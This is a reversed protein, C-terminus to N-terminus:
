GRCFRTRRVKVNFDSDTCDEAVLKLIELCIKVGMQPAPSWLNCFLDDICTTWRQPFDRVMLSALLSSLKNALIRADTIPNQAQQRAANLLATRLTLREKESLRSYGTKLMKALTECAFLKAAVTCDNNGGVVIQSTQLWRLCLPVRGQFKSFEDLVTFATQRDSPVIAQGSWSSSSSIVIARLVTEEQSDMRSILCDPKFAVKQLLIIEGLGHTFFSFLNL